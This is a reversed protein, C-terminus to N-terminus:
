TPESANTVCTCTHTPPLLITTLIERQPRSSGPEVGPQRVFQGMKKRKWIGMIRDLMIIQPQFERVCIYFKVLQCSNAMARGIERRCTVKNVLLRTWNCNSQARSFQLFRSGFLSHILPASKLRESPFNEKLQVGQAHTLPTVAASEFLLLCVLLWNSAVGNVENAQMEITHTHTHVQATSHAFSVTALAFVVQCALEGLEGRARKIANSEMLPM